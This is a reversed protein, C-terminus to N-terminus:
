IVYGTIDLICGVYTGGSVYISVAGASAGTGLAVMCLNSMAASGALFNVSTAQPVGLGGPFMTMFGGATPSLSTLNGVLGTAEIPIGFGPGPGAITFTHVSNPAWPGTGQGLPQPNPYSVGARSDIVRVPAIPTIGPANRYGARASYLVQTNAVSNFGFYPIVFSDVALKTPTLTLAVSQVSASQTVYTVASLVSYFGNAVLSLELNVHTADNLVFTYVFETLTANPPLPLSAVFYDASVSPRIGPPAGSVQLFGSASNRPKFATLGGVEVYTVGPTPPTFNSPLRTFGGSQQPMPEGSGTTTLGAAAAPMVAELGFASGAVGAAGLAAAKLVRRRDIKDM